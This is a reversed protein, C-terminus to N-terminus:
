VKRLKKELNKWLKKVESADTHGYIAQIVYKFTSDADGMDCEMNTKSHALLAKAEAKTIKM